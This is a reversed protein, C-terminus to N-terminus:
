EHRLTIAPDVHAARRAPGWTALAATGFLVAITALMAPPDAPSVGFLMSALLRGFGIAGAMGLAAGLTVTTLNQRLVMGLIARPQAGLAM